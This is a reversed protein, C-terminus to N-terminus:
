GVGHRGVNRQRRRRVATMVGDVVAVCCEKRLTEDRLRGEKREIM